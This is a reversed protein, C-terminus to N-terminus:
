YTMLEEGQWVIKAGEVQPKFCDFTYHSSEPLPVLWVKVDFLESRNDITLLKILAKTQENDSAWAFGGIAVYHQQEIGKTM